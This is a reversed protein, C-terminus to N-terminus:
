EEFTNALLKEQRMYVIQYDANFRVRVQTRLRQFKQLSPRYLRMQETFTATRSGDAAPDSVRLTGPEIRAQAQQNDPFFSRGLEADIAEPTLNQRIYLREVQPAFHESAHLPPANLDAYYSAMATRVKTTAADDGAEPAAPIPRGAAPPVTAVARTPAPEPEAATEVSDASPDDVPVAVRAAKTKRKPKRSTKKPKTSVPAPATAAPQETAAPAPSTLNEDPHSSDTLFYAVAGIVGLVLLIILWSASSRGDSAPAQSPRPPRAPPAPPRAAQVPAPPVVPAPKPEPYFTPAPPEPYFSPPAPPPAAPPAQRLRALNEEIRQRAAEEAASPRPPSPVPPPAPARVVPPAPPPPPSPAEPPSPARNFMDLLSPLEEAPASPSSKPVPAAPAPSAAAPQLKAKLTAFLEPTIVGAALAAELQQLETPNGAAPGPTLEDSM